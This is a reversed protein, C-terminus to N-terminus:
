NQYTLIEKSQLVNHCVGPVEFTQNKDYCDLLMVKIM